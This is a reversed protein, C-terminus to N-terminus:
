NTPDELVVFYIASVELLWTDVSGIHGCHEVATDKDVRQM